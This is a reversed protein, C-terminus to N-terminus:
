EPLQEGNRLLIVTAEEGFAYGVYQAWVIEGAQEGNERCVVWAHPRDAAPVKADAFLDSLKRSRGKLRKPRMRDGHQWRRAEFGDGVQVAYVDTVEQEWILKDYCRSLTGGPVSLTRTGAAAGRCLKLVDLQHRRLLPGGGCREVFLALVRAALGDPLADFPEGVTIQGVRQQRQRLLEIAAWDLVERHDRAADALGCLAEGIQPNEERLAPLWEHRVRVRTYRLDRNMPDHSFALGHKHCYAETQGRTVGLLPRAYKGRIPAMGGLGVLGTGRVIRMLVTEAQDSQTQALLIWTAREQAACLDLAAYRAARAAAELSARQQSVSVKRVLGKAGLSNAFAVVEQAEQASESRLGHDIHVVIPIPLHQARARAIALHALALSDAGGSCAILLQGEFPDLLSPRVLANNPPAAGLLLAARAVSPRISRIDAGVAVQGPVAGILVVLLDLM